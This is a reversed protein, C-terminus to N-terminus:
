VRPFPWSNAVCTKGDAVVGDAGIRALYDNSTSWTQQMMIPALEGEVPCGIHDFGLAHGVEHNVVYQQYATINGDFVYSGRELRATNIVVRRMDGRWCSGEFPIDFGCLSRTSLQSTLSVRIDADASNVRRLTYRGSGAWSKPHALVSDVMRSFSADGGPLDVQEEIEISYTFEQPGSGVTAAAAPVVRWRGAGREVFPGGPPLEATEGTRAPRALANPNPIAPPLRDPDAAEDVGRGHLRQDTAAETTPAPMQLIRVVSVGTILVMAATALGAM